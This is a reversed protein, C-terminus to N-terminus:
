KIQQYGSQLDEKNGEYEKFALRVNKMENLIADWMYHTVM